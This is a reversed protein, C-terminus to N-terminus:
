YWINTKLYSVFGSTPGGVKHTSDFCRLGVGAVRNRCSVIDHPQQLQLRGIKSQSMACSPIHKVRVSNLRLEKGSELIQVKNSPAQLRCGFINECWILVHKRRPFHKAPQSFSSCATTEQTCLIYESASTRVLHGFVLEWPSGRSPLILGEHIALSSSTVWRKM